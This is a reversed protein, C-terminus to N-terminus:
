TTACTLESEETRVIFSAIVLLNLATARLMVNARAKALGRYRTKRGGWYVKTLRANIRESFSRITNYTAKYDPDSQQTRLQRLEEERPHISVTRGSSSRTCNQRVPCTVCLNGFSAKQNNGSGRIEIQHGAPCTVSRKDPDITFADKNYLGHRNRPPSIKSIVSIGKEALEDRVGLSGYASDGVVLPQNDQSSQDQDANTNQEPNQDKIALDEVLDSVVDKDAVNAATATAGTILNSEIDSALHSKFGDFLRNASKHGHRAQQDAKSIVRDKAVGVKIVYSSGDKSLEIDQNIIVALFRINSSLKLSSVEKNEFHAILDYSIKSIENIYSKVESKDEFSPKDPLSVDLQEGIDQAESIIETIVDRMMTLTSKTELSDLLATSDLARKNGLTMGSTKAFELVRSFIRDPSKSAAIRTRLFSLASFDFVEADMSLGCAVRWRLDYRIRNVTERDSTGELFSLVMAACIVRAPISPRGRKSTYIDVFFEAPFIDDGKEALLFYVSPKPLEELVKSLVDDAVFRKQLASNHLNLRGIAM